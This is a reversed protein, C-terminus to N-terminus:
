VRDRGTGLATEWAALDRVLWAASDPRGADNTFRVRLLQRGMTKGLHSTAREVATVRDRPITLERRPLWMIFLIRSTSAALHGNGRVQAMGRSEVGFFNASEDAAVIGEAGLRADIEAAISRRRRRLLLM